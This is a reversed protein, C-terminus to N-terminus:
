FGAVDDFGDGGEDCAFAAASGLEGLGASFVGLVDGMGEGGSCGVDVFFEGLFDGGLLHLAAAGGAIFILGQRLTLPNKTSFLYWRWRAKYRPRRARGRKQVAPLKGADLCQLRHWAWKKTPM